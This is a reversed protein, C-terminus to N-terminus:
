RRGKRNSPEPAVWPPTPVVREPPPDPHLPGFADVSPKPPMLEAVEPPLQPPPPAEAPGPEVVEDRIWEGRYERRYRAPGPEVVEPQSAEEATVGVATFVLRAGVLQGADSNPALEVTVVEGDRTIATVGAEGVRFRRMGVRELALCYRQSPEFTTANSV